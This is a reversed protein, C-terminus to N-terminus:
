SDAHGLEAAADMLDLHYPQGNRWSDIAAESMRAYRTPDALLVDVDHAAGDPGSVVLANYHHRCYRGIEGAPTVVPVLGLQMAEVVALAKGEFRSTQLYFRTARTREVITEFPQEGHFHVCGSLGLAEVEDRLLALRGGDRGFIDFRADPRRKAVEAFVALARSLDKEWSLRGWFAFTPTPRLRPTQAIVRPLFSITRTPKNFSRPLRQRLTEDSDAWVADCLALMLKTALTDVLHYDRASHLFVVLRKQPRLWRCVALALASKWLSFVVVRSQCMDVANLVASIASPTWSSRQGASTALKATPQMGSLFHVRLAGHLDNAALRAATEVGGVGDRPIVHLLRVPTDAASSSVPERRRLELM